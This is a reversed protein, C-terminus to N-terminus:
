SHRQAYCFSLAADLIKQNKLGEEGPIPSETNDIIADSFFTIEREYLNPVFVKHVPFQEPLGQKGGIYTIEVNRESLTFDSLSVIGETGYIEFVSRRYPANFSCYISGIIGKSYKINVFATDETRDSTPLPHLQSCVSEVEDDLVFRMTDLCHVGIDFLPGSGALARDFLWRRKSLRSDYIYETRVYQITGLTGAKVLKKLWEIAPSFRVMHGVMLKVNNKRCADTMAQAETSNLAMPKEVLVHKGAQAAMITQQAHLSNPSSIFVADIDSCQILEEERVFAFPIKYQEAKVKVEDSNRKQIAVLESNPSELIAPAIAREAFSGFGIIGYRVKKIQNTTM